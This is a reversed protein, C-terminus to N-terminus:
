SFICMFDDYNIELNKNENIGDLFKVKIFVISRVIVKIPGESMSDELGTSDEAGISGEPGISDELSIRFIKDYNNTPIRYEPTVPEGALSQHPQATTPDYATYSLSPSLFVKIVVSWRTKEAFVREAYCVHAAYRLSPSIFLARGWAKVGFITSDLNYHGSQTTIVTGDPLTSGSPQLGYLAISKLHKFKTGHWGLKWNNPIDEHLIIEKGIVESGYLIPRLRTKVGATALSSELVSINDEKFTKFITKMEENEAEEDPMHGWKNTITPDAGYELLLQVIATQGFYAAGHLATSGDIQKHNIPSGRVLLIKTLDYFGSRAALYLPVHNHENPKHILSEDRSIEELIRKTHGIATLVFIDENQITFQDGNKRFRSQDTSTLMFYALSALARDQRSPCTAKKKFATKIKLFKVGQNIGLIKYPNITNEIIVEGGNETKYQYRFVTATPESSNATSSPVSNGMKLHVFYRISELFNTM